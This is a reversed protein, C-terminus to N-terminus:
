VLRIRGTLLAQAMGQKLQRAKALRAQLASIEADIDSLTTAIATQEAREPMPLTIAALSSSSIHVVADGQGRSAKQRNVEPTNLAYGLFRPDNNPSRFIVIDGGAFAEVPNVVAVCKGIEAKTEGSGAFLVDGKAIPTATAAVDHSIWSYFARIHEHHHTYIEGYRV